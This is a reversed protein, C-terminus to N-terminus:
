IKKRNREYYKISYNTQILEDSLRHSEIFKRTIVSAYFCYKQFEIFFKYSGTWGDEEEDFYWDSSFDTEEILKRFEETKKKLEIKWIVSDYIM